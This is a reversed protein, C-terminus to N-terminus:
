VVDRNEGDDKNQGFLKEYVDKHQLHFWYCIRPHPHHEGYIECDKDEDNWTACCEKCRIGRTM